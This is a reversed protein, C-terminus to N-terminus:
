NATRRPAPARCISRFPSGSYDRQRAGPAACPVNVMRQRAGRWWVCSLPLPAGPAQVLRQRADLPMVCPLPPLGGHAMSWDKGHATGRPARCLAPDVTRRSWEKDHAKGRPARCLTSGNGHTSPPARCLPHSATEGRVATLVKEKGHTM